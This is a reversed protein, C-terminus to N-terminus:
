KLAKGSMARKRRYHARWAVSDMLSVLFLSSMSINGVLLRHPSSTREAEFLGACFYYSAVAILSLARLWSILKFRRCDEDSWTAELENPKWANAIAAIAALAALASSVMRFGSLLAPGSAADLWWAQILLFFDNM